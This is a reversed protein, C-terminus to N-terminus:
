YFTQCSALLFGPSEGLLLIRVSCMGMIGVTMERLSSLLPLGVVALTSFLAAARNKCSSWLFIISSSSGWNRTGMPRQETSSFCGPCHASNWLDPCWGPWPWSSDRSPGRYLLLQWPLLWPGVSVLHPAHKRTQAMQVIETGMVCGATWWVPGMAVATTILHVRLPGLLLPPFFIHIQPFCWVLFGLIKHSAQDWVLILRLVITSIETKAAAAWHWAFNQLATWKFIM